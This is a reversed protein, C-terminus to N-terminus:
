SRIEEVVTVGAKEDMDGIVVVAGKRCFLQASARGRGSGGGTMVVVRGALKGSNM